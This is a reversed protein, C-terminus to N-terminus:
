DMQVSPLPPVICVDLVCFIARCTPCPSKGTLWTAPRQQDQRSAFWRGMCAVCWMPRCYCRYCSPVPRGEADFRAIEDEQCLKVLKVNATEQMCGICPDISQREAATMDFQPNASISQQFAEIFRESLTQQIIVNRANEIPRQLKMRMTRYDRADLRIIFSPIPKSINEVRINLFQVGTQSEDSTRHSLTHEDTREVALRVDAQQSICVSYSSVVIVWSDTVIVRKIGGLTATFKDVRRYEENITAAVRRWNSDYLMLIRVLPHNSWNNLHWFAVLTAIAIPFLISLSLILQWIWPMTNFQFEAFLLCVFFGFPLCSHAFVNLSTRRIHYDV